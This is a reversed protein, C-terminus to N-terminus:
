FEVGEIGCGCSDLDCMVSHVRRNEVDIAFVDLCRSFDFDNLISLVEKAHTDNVWSLPVIAVRARDGKVTDNGFQTIVDNPTANEPSIGLGVIEGDTNLDILITVSEPKEDFNSNEVLFQALERPSTVKPTAEM